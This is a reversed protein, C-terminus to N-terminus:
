QPGALRKAPPWFTTALTTIEESVHSVHTIPLGGIVPSQQSTIMRHHSTMASCQWHLKCHMGRGAQHKEATGSGFAGPLPGGRAINNLLSNFLSSGKCQHHRVTRDHLVPAEQKALLGGRAVTAAFASKSHHHCPVSMVSSVRDPIVGPGPNCHLPGRGKSTRPSM